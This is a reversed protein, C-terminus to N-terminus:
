SATPRSTIVHDVIGFVKAEEGTMFRDRDTEREIV